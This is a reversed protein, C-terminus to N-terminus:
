FTKKKRVSCGKFGASIHTESSALLREECEALRSGTNEPNAYIEAIAMFVTPRLCGCCFSLSYEIYVTIYQLISYEFDANLVYKSRLINM